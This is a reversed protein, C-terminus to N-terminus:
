LRWWQGNLTLPGFDAGFAIAQQPTPVFFSVGRLVMVAFVLANIGILAITVPYSPSKSIEQELAVQGADRAAQYCAPCITTTTDGLPVGFGKGCHTCPRTSM